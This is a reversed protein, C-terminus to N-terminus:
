EKETREEEHREMYFRLATKDKKLQIRVADLIYASLAKGVAKATNRIEHGEDLTPRLMIADRKDQCEKIKALREEKTQAMKVAETTNSVVM